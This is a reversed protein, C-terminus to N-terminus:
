TIKVFFAIYFLPIRFSGGGHSFVHFDVFDFFSAIFFLPLGGAVLWWCGAVLWWGGALVASEQSGLSSAFQGRIDHEGSM